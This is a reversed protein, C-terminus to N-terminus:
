RHRRWVRHGDDELDGIELACGAEVTLREPEIQAWREMVAIIPPDTAGM